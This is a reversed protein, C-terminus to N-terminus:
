RDVFGWPGGESPRSGEPAHVIYVWPRGHGILQPHVEAKPLGPLRGLWQELDSVSNWRGSIVLVTAAEQGYRAWTSRWERSPNERELWDIEFHAVFTTGQLNEQFKRFVHFDHHKRVPITGFHRYTESPLYGAELLQLRSWSSSFWDDTLIVLRPTAELIRRLLEKAELEGRYSAKKMRHWMWPTIWLGDLRRPGDHTGAVTFNKGSWWTALTLPGCPYQVCLLALGLLWFRAGKPRNWKFFEGTGHCAVRVVFPLTYLLYRPTTLNWGYLAVSPFVGFAFLLLEDKQNNRALQWVGSITLAILPLSGWTAWSILSQRWLAFHELHGKAEGLGETMSIDLVHVGALLVVFGCGLFTLPSTPSPRSGMWILWLAGPALLLADWRFLTALGFSAGALVLIGIEQLSTGNQSRNFEIQPRVKAALQLLVLGLLAVAAAPATSNGFYAVVWAEQCMLAILLSLFFPIRTAFTSWYATLFIFSFASFAALLGLARSAPLTFWRSILAAAWYTAAQPDYRYLLPHHPNGGEQIYAAGAALAADDGEAPVIPWVGLAVWGLLVLAFPPLWMRLISQSQDFERTTVRPSDAIAPYQEGSHVIMLRGEEGRIAQRSLVRRGELYSIWRVPM